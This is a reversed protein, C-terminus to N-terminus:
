IPVHNSDAVARYRAPTVGAIESFERTLHAQDAYGIEAAVDALTRRPDCLAARARQFRLVRAHQKPALGVDDRYLSIFRAHAIGSAAVVEGVRAGEALAALAGAVAPHLARIRPLRAALEAEFLDVAAELCRAEGLQDRVRRADAGWADELSTHRGSLEHASGGFLLRAAGPLLMAGVAHSPQTTDRVYAEARVGGIVGVAFTSVAGGPHGGDLMRMPTEAAKGIRVVVHMQGTPLMRELGTPGSPAGATDAGWLQSVFPRLAARPARAIMRGHPEAM